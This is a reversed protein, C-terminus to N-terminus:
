KAPLEATYRRSSVQTGAADFLKGEDTKNNWIARKVGFSFGGTEPHSENTYVRVSQGSRLVTGAPFAFDQKSDDAHLKWGSIDVHSFGQNTVEVFEDSEVSKVKGNYFIDTIAVRQPLLSADFFALLGRGPGFGSVVQNAPSEPDIDTVPNANCCYLETVGKLVPHEQPPKFNGKFSDYVPELRLGVANLFTKWQNAEGAAGGVGTGANLFVCGGSKVYEILVNNDAANGGVFIGDYALLAQVNFPAAINITVTHGAARLAAHFSGQTLSFNTSFVHFKGPKGGSFWSALNQAFARASPAKGFGVDSLAFEDGSVFVKGTKQAM